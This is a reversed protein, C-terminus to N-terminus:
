DQKHSVPEREFIFDLTRMLCQKQQRDISIVCNGDKRPFTQPGYHGFGSHNGGEIDYCLIDKLKDVNGDDDDDGGVRGIGILKLLTKSYRLSGAILDNSATIFLTKDISESLPGARRFYSLSSTSSLGWLVCKMIDTPRSTTKGKRQSIDHRLKLVLDAGDGHGSLVWEKVIMGMLKEIQYIVQFCHNVVGGGGSVNIGIPTVVLTPDMNMVIVLVGADSLKSMIISYSTIDILSEPYFIIGKDIIGGISANKPFYIDYSNRTGTSTPHSSTRKIRGDNMRQVFFNSSSKFSLQRYHIIWYIAYLSHIMIFSLYGVISKRIIGHIMSSKPITM